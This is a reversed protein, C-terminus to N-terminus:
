RKEMVKRIKTRHLQQLLNVLDNRGKAKRTQNMSSHACSDGFSCQGKTTRRICDGRESNTKANDKGKGKTKGKSPSGIAPTQERRSKESQFSFGQNEARSTKPGNLRCYDYRKDDDKSRLRAVFIDIIGVKEVQMKYLSELINDTPRDTVASFM